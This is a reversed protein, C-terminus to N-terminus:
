QGSVCIVNSAMSRSGDACLAYVKISYCYPYGPFISIESSTFTHSTGSENILKTSTLMSGPCCAPDGWIVEIQYSTAGAVPSWTINGAYRGGPDQLVPALLICGTQECSLNCTTRGACSTGCANTVKHTVYYCPGGNYLLLDKTDYTGLSTYPGTNINPADYIKWVHTGKATSHAELKSGASAVLSFSADPDSACCEISFDRILSLPGCTSNVTLTLRYNGPQFTIPYQTTFLDSINISSHDGVLGQAVALQSYSAGNQKSIAIDYSGAFNGFAHLFVDDNLCYANKLNGEKDNLTADLLGCSLFYINGAAALGTWDQANTVKITITNTGQILLGTAIGTYGSFFSNQQPFVASFAPTGNVLIQAQNEEVNLYTFNIGAQVIQCSTLNFTFRYYYDGPPVTKLHEGASNLFPSIWRENGDQTLYYGPAALERVGTGIVVPNFVGPPDNPTNVTWHNDVSGIPALPTNMTYCDMSSNGTGLYIAYGWQAHVRTCSAMLLFILIPTLIKKM